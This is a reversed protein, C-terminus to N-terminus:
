RSINIFEANSLSYSKQYGYYGIIGESIYPDLLTILTDTLLKNDIQNKEAATDVAPVFFHIFCADTYFLINGSFQGM